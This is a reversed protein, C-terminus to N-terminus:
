FNNSGNVCVSRELLQHLTDLLYLLKSVVSSLRNGVFVNDVCYVRQHVVRAQEVIVTIFPVVLFAVFFGPRFELRM